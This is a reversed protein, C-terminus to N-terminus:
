RIYNTRIKKEELVPTSIGAKRGADISQLLWAMNQALVRMTQMGEEDRKVDDPEYGHVMNWYHSSVVPMQNYNFYKNLRDLAATTGARRASVIAAGPKFALKSGSSFFLRDCFAVIQASPGAYHVPSGIILADYEDLREIIKNVADDFVCRPQEQKRCFGCGKCTALPEKGTFFIESEIGHKELETAIESLATYTCGKERPSGNLMLVKM